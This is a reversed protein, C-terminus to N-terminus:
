GHNVDGIPIFADLPDQFLVFESFHLVRLFYEVVLHVNYGGQRFLTNDKVKNAKIFPLQYICPLQINTWYTHGSVKYVYCDYDYQHPILSENLVNEVIFPKGLKLLIEIIRPLYDKTLLSYESNDRDQNIKSYYNCPPTAIIYDYSSLDVDFASGGIDRKGDIDQYVLDFNKHIAICSFLYIGKM